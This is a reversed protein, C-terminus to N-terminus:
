WYMARSQVRAMTGVGEAATELAIPLDAVSWARKFSSGTTMLLGLARACSGPHLCPPRQLNREKNRAEALITSTSLKQPFHPPYITFSHFDVPGWPSTQPSWRTGMQRPTLQRPKLQRPKLQRKFSRLCEM